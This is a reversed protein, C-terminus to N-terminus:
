KQHLLQLAAKREKETLADAEDESLGKHRATHWYYHLVGQVLVRELRKIKAPPQRRMQRIFLDKDLNYCYGALHYFIESSEGDYDCHLETNLLYTLATTDKTNRYYDYFLEMVPYYTKEYYASRVTEYEVKTATFNNCLKPYRRIARRIHQQQLLPPLQNFFDISDKHIWGDFHGPMNFRYWAGVFTDCDFYTNPRVVVLVGTKSDNLVTVQKLGAKILAAEQAPAARACLLIVILLLTKM